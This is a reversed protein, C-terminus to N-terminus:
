AGGGLLEVTEWYCCSYSSIMGKVCDKSPVQPEFGSLLSGLLKHFASCTSWQHAISVWIGSKISELSMPLVLTGWGWTTEQEWFSTLEQLFAQAM